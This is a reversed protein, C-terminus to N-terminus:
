NGSRLAPLQQDDNRMDFSPCLAPGAVISVSSSADDM